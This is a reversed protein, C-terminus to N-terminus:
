RKLKRTLKAMSKHLEDAVTPIVALGLVDLNAGDQYSCEAAMKTVVVVVRAAETEDQAAM